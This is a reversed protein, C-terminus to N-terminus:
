PSDAGAGVHCDPKRPDDDASSSVFQGIQLESRGLEFTETAFHYWAIASTTAPARGGRPIAVDLSRPIGDIHDYHALASTLCITAIPNGSAAELWDWDV